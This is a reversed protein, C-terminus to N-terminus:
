REHNRHIRRATMVFALNRCAIPWCTRSEVSGRKRPRADGAPGAFARLSHGFQTCDPCMSSTEPMLAMRMYFLETILALTSM